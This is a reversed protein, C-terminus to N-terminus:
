TAQSPLAAVCALLLALISSTNTVQVLGAAPLQGQSQSIVLLMKMMMVTQLMQQKQLALWRRL